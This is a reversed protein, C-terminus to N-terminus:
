FGQRSILLAIAILIVSVGLLPYGPKILSVVALVLAIVVLIMFVSMCPFRQHAPTQSYLRYLVLSSRNQSQGGAHEPYQHRWANVVAAM